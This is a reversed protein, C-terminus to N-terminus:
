KRCALADYQANRREADRITEPTDRRSPRIKGGAQNMVDCYSAKGTAPEGVPQCAIAVFILAFGKCTLM